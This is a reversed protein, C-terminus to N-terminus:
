PRKWARIRANRRVGVAIYGRSLPCPSIIEEGRFRSILSLAFDAFARFSLISGIFDCIDGKRLRSDEILSREHRRESRVKAAFSVKPSESIERMRHSNRQSSGLGRNSKSANAM